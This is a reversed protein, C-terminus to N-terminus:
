PTIEFVTGLGDSQTGGANTTSYLNGAGDFILNGYPESGDGNASFNHLITETWSGANQPTLEFVTGYGDSGGLRTTGYLNGASDFILGAAPEAGDDNSQNFNHLIKETWDGGAQPSLEFVTGDGNNANLGGGYTTGYLNGAADIILSGYLDAGDGAGPDFSHLITEEWKGGAQPSLEFVTGKDRGQLGGLFTTGYLNGAADFVLSGYPFRGDGGSRNFAHLIKYSWDGNGKPSLEFVTGGSLGGGATTTGYLNGATDLILAAWPNIGDGSGGFNHLLTEKWGGGAQPSLEFVVGGDRGPGGASTAGYLNGAKDFVLGAIPFAGDRSYDFSHVVRERWGGGTAPSLEFISGQDTAGGNVATGFLNGSADFVVGDRPNYGNNGLSYLITESAQAHALPVTAITITFTGIMIAALFHSFTQIRSSSQSTM